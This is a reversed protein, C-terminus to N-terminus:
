HKQISYTVIGWIEFDNYEKIKIPKFNDNEPMLWIEKDVV